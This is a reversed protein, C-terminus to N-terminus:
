RGDAVESRPERVANLDNVLAGVPSNVLKRISLQLLVTVGRLCM